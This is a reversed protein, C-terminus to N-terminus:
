CREIHKCIDIDHDLTYRLSEKLEALLEEADESNM